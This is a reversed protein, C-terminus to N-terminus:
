RNKFMELISKTLKNEESSAAVALDSQTQSTKAAAATAAIDAGSVAAQSQTTALLSSQNVQTAFSLANQAAAFSAQTSSIQAIASQVQSISAKIAAADSWGSSGVAAVGLSAADSPKNAVTIQGGETTTNVTMPSSSTSVLNLGNVSANAVFGSTQQLAANFQQALTAQAEPTASLAEAATSLMNTLTNGVNTLAQQSTSLVTDAIAVNQQVVSLKTVDSELPVALANAISSQSTGTALAQLLATRTTQQQNLLTNVGITTSVSDAQTM